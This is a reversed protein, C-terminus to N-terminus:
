HELVCLAIKNITFPMCYRQRLCMSKFKISLGNSRRLLPLRSTFRCNQIPDPLTFVQHSFKIFSVTTTFSHRSFKLIDFFEYKIRHLSTLGNRSFPKATIFRSCQERQWRIDQEDDYGNIDHERARTCKQPNKYARRRRTQTM